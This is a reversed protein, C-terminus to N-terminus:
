PNRSLLISHSNLDAIRPRVLRTMEEYPPRQTATSPLRNPFPHLRKPNIARRAVKVEVQRWEAQAELGFCV